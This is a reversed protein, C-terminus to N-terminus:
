VVYIHYDLNEANRELSLYVHTRPYTLHISLTVSFLLSYSIPPSLSLSLSLYHSTFSSTLPFSSSFHAFLPSFLSSTQLAHALCHMYLRGQPLDVAFCSIERKRERGREGEDERSARSTRFVVKRRKNERAKDKEGKVYM